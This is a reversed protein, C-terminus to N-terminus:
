NLLSIGLSQFDDINRTTTTTTTTTEKKRTAIARIKQMLTLGSPPTDVFNDGNITEGELDRNTEAVSNLLSSPITGEKSVLSFLENIQERQTEILHHLRESEKNMADMEEEHVNVDAVTSSACPSPQGAVVTNNNLLTMKLQCIEAHLQQVNEINEKQKQDILQNIDDDLSQIDDSKTTANNSLSGNPSPVISRIMDFLRIILHRNCDHYTNSGNKLDSRYHCLANWLADYSDHDDIFVYDRNQISHKASAVNDDDAERHTETM